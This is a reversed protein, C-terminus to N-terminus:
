VFNYSLGWLSEPVLRRDYYEALWQDAKLFVMELMNVRTRFFPWQSSMENLLPEKGEKIVQKLAVGTGLWSPLMLRNQTWAFIWPIARLSEVGGNPKRKSPRSGLPLKGLEMEPTAARFYPVFDPEGRIISRYHDCSISALQDMIEYWEPKPKPPPLLNAELVASTYLKLSTIAM